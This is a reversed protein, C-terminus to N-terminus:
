EGGEKKVNAKDFPGFDSAEGMIFVREGADSSEARNGVETMLWQVGSGVVSSLLVKRQADDLAELGDVLVFQADQKKALYTALKAGLHVTEAGSLERIDVGNLLLCGDAYELGDVPMETANLLDNPAARLKDLVSGLAAARKDKERIEKEREEIRGARRQAEIYEGQQQHLKETRENSQETLWNAEQADKAAADVKLNAEAVARGRANHDEHLGAIIADAEVLAQEADEVQQLLSAIKEQQALRRADASDIAATIAARESEEKDRADVAAQYKASAPALSTRFESEKELEATKDDLASVAASEEAVWAQETKIERNLVRRDDFLRKSMKALLGLVDGKPEWKVDPAPLGVADFEDKVWSWPLEIPLHEMLTKVRDGADLWEIPNFQVANCLDTLEQQAGTIKQGDKEVTLKSPKGRKKFRTAKMGNSLEVRIECAEADKHIVKDSLGGRAFAAQVAEIASTKGTMNEGALVTVTNPEIDFFSIGKFNRIAIRAIYVKGEDM